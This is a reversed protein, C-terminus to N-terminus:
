FTRIPKTNAWIIFKSFILLVFSSRVAHTLLKGGVLFTVMVVLM